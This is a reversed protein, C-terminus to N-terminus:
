ADPGSPLLVAWKEEEEAPEVTWSLVQCRERDSSM